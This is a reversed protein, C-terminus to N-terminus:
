LLREPLPYGKQALSERVPFVNLALATVLSVALGVLLAVLHGATTYPGSQTTIAAGLGAYLGGLLAIVLADRLAPRPDSAARVRSGVFAALALVGGATTLGAPWGHSRLVLSAAVLLTFGGAFLVERPDYVLRLVSLSALLLFGVFGSVIGSFGALLPSEGPLVLALPGYVVAFTVGPVVAVLALSTVYFWRVALLRLTLAYALGAAFVFTAVNSYLHAEDLHVLAAPYAALPNSTSLGAVLSDLWGGAWVHAVVPVAALLGVLVLGAVLRSLPYHHEPGTRPRAEQGLTEVVTNQHATLEALLEQYEPNSVLDDVSREGELARKRSLAALYTRIDAELTQRSELDAVVTEIDALSVPKTVYEDIDLQLMEATPDVGSVMAVQCGLERGRIERLVAEGPIDPLRRDLLVVDVDSDLAAIADEGTYATRVTYSEGLRAAFADALGREDEVVLVTTEGSENSM